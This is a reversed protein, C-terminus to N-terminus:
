QHSRKEIGNMMANYKKPNRRKARRIKKKVKDCVLMLIQEQIIKRKVPCTTSQLEAYLENKRYQNYRHKASKSM